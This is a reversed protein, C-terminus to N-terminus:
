ATQRVTVGCKGSDTDCYILRCGRGTSVRTYKNKKNWRDSMPMALTEASLVFWLRQGEPRTTLWGRLVGEHTPVFPAESAPAECSSSAM